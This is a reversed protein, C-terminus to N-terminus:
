QEMQSSWTLYQLDPRSNVKPMDQSPGKKGTTARPESITAHINRQKNPPLRQYHLSSYAELLKINNATFPDWVVPSYETIPRIPLKLHQWVTAYRIVTHWRIFIILWVSTYTLCLNYVNWTRQYVKVNTPMRQPLFLQKHKCIIKKAYASTHIMVSLM